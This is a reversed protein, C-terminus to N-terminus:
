IPFPRVGAHERGRRYIAHFSAWVATVILGVLLSDFLFLSWLLPGSGVFVMAVNLAIHLVLLPLFVAFYIALGPVLVASGRRISTLPGTSRDGLPVAVRWGALLVQLVSALLFMGLGAVISAAKGISAEDLGPGALFQGIDLALFVLVIPVFGAVAGRPLAATRFRDGGSHIYRSIWLGGIM